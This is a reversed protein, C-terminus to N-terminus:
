INVLKLPREIRAFGERQYEDETMDTQFDMDYLDSVYIQYM